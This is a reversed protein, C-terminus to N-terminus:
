YSELLLVLYRRLSLQERCVHDCIKKSAYIDRLIFRLVVAPM